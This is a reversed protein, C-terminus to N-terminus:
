NLISPSLNDVDLKLLKSIGDEQMTVGYLVDAAEMTGRRHTIVIFQTKDCIRHLYNAYRSVNVDDLAAEIEDLVCFPSPNHALIAFYISIAVLAQEGGSLATLSKIVKGPPSVIIEIGSNLVDDKDTLELRASGGGFLEVFIKGFNENIIEFSQSFLAKMEGNLSTILKVLQNKSQQLDELQAKMYTYKQSVDKYEEIANTNVSGLRRISNRVSNLEKKMDPEDTIEVCFRRATQITLEYEEWLKRIIDDYSTEMSVIREELKAIEGSLRAKEDSLSRNDATLRNREAEIEMRTQALTRNEEEKEKITLQLADIKRLTAKIEEDRAANEGCIRAIEDNIEAIRQQRDALSTELQALNNEELSIAGTLSVVDLKIQQIEDTIANQQRLSEEDRAGLSDLQIQLSVIQKEGDAIRQTLTLKRKNNNELSHTFNDIEGELAEARNEYQTYVQELRAYEIEANYKEGSLNAIEGDCGEISSNVRDVADQAALRNKELQTYDDKLKELSKKQNELETKRTFMGTSKSVSGGTFSGGANVVQGDLTVIRYRYNLRRALSSASNINDVIITRGMLNSIIHKYRDDTIIISDGTRAWDPLKENFSSPKVTDLPLFTARGGNSNKLYEMARKAASENEVVINQLSFGMATEVATEYGKEVSILQGVSGLVGGLGGDKARKLVSKVSGSFGEMSNEMETLYRIRDLIRRQSNANEEARKIATDLKTQASNKKMMLGNRINTTRTINEGTLDIFQKVEDADKKGQAMYEKALKLNEQALALSDKITENRSDVSGRDIRDQQLRLNLASIEGSIRGKEDGTRRAQAILRDLQMQLSSQRFLKEDKEINLRQIKGTLQQKTDSDADGMDAFRALDRELSSVQSDAFGKQSELVAKESNLAAIQGEAARIDRINDSDKAILSNGYLYRDELYKESEELKTSVNDFDETFIELRRQQQRILEKSKDVTDLWLSIELEKKRSSLTLFEKAKESEKRLPEVREELNMLIDTLRTINGEAAQLKREAENKKYRFKAIGSAEEFIERRGEPKSTVIESVKGQGVVSYGNKGLGTDFFLEQIDRLRVRAGNIYYESDGGRYYKRMVAVEDSEVDFARDTNDLILSVSAFGMPSRKQTGGFIIDEMKGSARLQSGRTEGLVWRIADSINSKGSGNPGVVASMGKEFEIKTKEPFSKFGHLEIAKLYM